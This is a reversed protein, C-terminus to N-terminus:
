RQIHETRDGAFVLRGFWKYYERCAIRRIDVVEWHIQGVAIRQRPGPTCACQEHCSGALHNQRYFASPAANDFTLSNDFIFNPLRFLERSRMKTAFFAGSVEHQRSCMTWELRM